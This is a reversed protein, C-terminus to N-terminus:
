PAITSKLRWRDVLNLASEQWYAYDFTFGADLLKQPNLGPQPIHTLWAPTRLGFHSEIWAERLAHMFEHNALPYPSAIDFVGECNDTQLLFEIARLFDWDHIWEVTQEGSGVDGGFGSRVLWFLWGFSGFHPSMIPALRLQVTRTLSAIAASATLWVRPSQRCREIAQAVVPTHRATLSIVADASEISSAWEGVTEADWHVAQWPQPKPYRSITSVADGRLHFHRALFLSLRGTGGTIVIRM